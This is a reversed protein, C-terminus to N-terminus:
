GSALTVDTSATPQGPLHGPLFLGHAVIAEPIGARCVRAAAEFCHGQTGHFPVAVPVGVGAARQALIGAETDEFGIVRARAADDIGLLGLALVYLDRQPKLRAEHCGTATVYAAYFDRPQALGAVTRARAEESVPWAAAEDRLLRFVETLVIDAEPASSSTVLAVPCPHEAFHSGLRALRAAAAEVPPAGNFDGCLTPALAAAEAGLWGRALAFLAGIGPLPVIAPGPRGFVREAVAAGGGHAIDHLNGHLRHYYVDLGVRTWLAANGHALQRAVAAHRDAEAPLGLMSLSLRIEEDRGPIPCHSLTWALADLFATAARQPDFAAGHLGVLYEVNCTASTGIIHPYDREPHLGPWAAQGEWGTFRRIMFELADLCLDETTTTTGDMDVLIAAPPGPCVPRCPGLPILDFPPFQGAPQEVLVFEPALETLARAADAASLYRAM